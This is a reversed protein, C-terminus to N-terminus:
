VVERLVELALVEGLENERQIEQDAVACREGGCLEHVPHSRAHDLHNPPAPLSSCPGDVLVNVVLLLVRRRIHQAHHWGVSRELGEKQVLAVLDECGGGLRYALGGVGARDGVDLSRGVDRDRVHAKGSGREGGDERAEVNEGAVCRAGLELEWVAGLTERDGVVPECVGGELAIHGLRRHLGHLQRRQLPLHLPRVARAHALLRLAEKRREEALVELLRVSALHDQHGRVEAALVLGLRPAVDGVVKADALLRPQRVDGARGRVARVEEAPEALCRHGLLPLRPHSVSHQPVQLRLRQPQHVPAHATGLLQGVLLRHALLLHPARHRQEPRTLQHPVAAVHLLALRALHLVRRVAPALFRQLTQDLAPDVLVVRQALRINSLVLAELFHHVCGVLERRDRRSLVACVCGRLLLLAIVKFHDIRSFRAAPDTGRELTLLSQHLEM